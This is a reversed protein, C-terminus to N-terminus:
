ESPKFNFVIVRDFLAADSPAPLPSAKNVAAVISRQVVDDGNCQTVKVDVVEGGPIQEVRVTCDLGAQASPPKIWNREVKQRIAEVYSGRLKALHEDRAKQEAALQAKLQAEREAQQKAEEEAKRKAAAEEQQQKIKALRAEEAKRKAEASAVAAQQADAEQKLKTLRQQDAKEQAAHQAQLQAIRKQEEERAKRAADAQQQLKKQRAEEAAKKRADAAKLDALQQDILKQDVVTAKVPESVKGTGPAPRPGHSSLGLSVTLLIAFALHVLVSFLWPRGNIAFWKGRISAASM